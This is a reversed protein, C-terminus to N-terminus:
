QTTTVVHSTGVVAGALVLSNLFAIFAAGFLTAGDARTAGSKKLGEYSIFFSIAGWIMALGYPVWLVSAWPALTQLAHWATTIAGTMAAFNTLSQITLFESIAPKTLDGGSADLPASPTTTTMLVNAAM